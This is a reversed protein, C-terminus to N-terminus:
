VVESEEYKWIFGHATKRKGRACEGINGQNYGARNAEKQSNWRKILNGKLDYQLIPTKWSYPIERRTSCSKNTHNGYNINYKHSCWELNDANPNGRDEDKHNVEPLNNPNPVFLEAVLRHLLVTKRDGNKDILTLHLYGQGDFSISMFRHTKRSYVRGSKFIIYDPFNDLTRGRPLHYNM